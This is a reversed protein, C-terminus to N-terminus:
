VASCAAGYKKVYQQHYEEAEYFTSAPVVETVIPSKFIGRDNWEKIKAVSQQRQEENVYFIVSRYQHGVDEGQRHVSTPDHAELFYEVLAEYTLVEPDFEIRISEAHGTEGNKVQQYSPNEVFGGTYGVTTNTVGNLRDFFAEVGWFCGAGFTAIAM